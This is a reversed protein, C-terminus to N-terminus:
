FEGFGFCLAMTKIIRRRRQHGVIGARDRPLFLDKRFQYIFACNVRTTRDVGDVDDLLVEYPEPVQSSYLSSCVLGNVHSFKSTCVKDPSIVVVPHPSEASPTPYYWIDWQKM